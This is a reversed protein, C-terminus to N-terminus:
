GGPGVSFGRGPRRWRRRRATTAATSSAGEVRWRRGTPTRGVLGKEVVVVSRGQVSTWVLKAGAGAGIIVIDAAEM